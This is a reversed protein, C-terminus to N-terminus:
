QLVVTNGDAPLAAKMTHKGARVTITKAIHDPSGAYWKGSDKMLLCANDVTIKEGGSTTVTGAAYFTTMITGDGFEVAQCERTDALIKWGTAAPAKSCPVIAYGRCPGTVPLFVKEQVPASSGSANISQWTGSVSQLRLEVDRPEPFIYAIGNHWLWRTNHLQHIGEGIAGKYGDAYVHGQWRCQDLATYSSDEEAGAILCVVTDGHCAWSKRFPQGLEYDMATLGSVGNGVSGAFPKRVVKAAGKWGTLGPLLNWDWVPMLDTYEKGNIITYGDGTHLLRGKLNEHNISETPLTRNSLIKLFFSFAPRHYAAFDSRPFYRFGQPQGPNQFTLFPILPTLDASRLAGPRSVSRDVTGPVTFAGRAMWRWGANILSDILAIKEPPYAWATGKTEWTLRVNDWLFAKGYQYMQLRASHQHFSYDPQIGDGDTIRIERFIYAMCRHMFLSDGTFAGYHFALDACWILNAGTSKQWSTSDNQAMVGLAGTFQERSMRDRMLVIIDRMFQPVGIKNHWWNSSKYRTKLWHNLASQLITQMAPSPNRVAALDRVRKLHESVKWNAPEKDEYNIDTWQQRNNDFNATLTRVDPHINNQLYRQYRSLLTDTQASATLAPLLM